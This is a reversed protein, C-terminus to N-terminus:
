STKEYVFANGKRFVIKLEPCSFDQGALVLVKSENALIDMKEQCGSGIFRSYLGSNKGDLNSNVLCLARAGAVPYAALSLFPDALVTSGPYNAKVYALADYQQPTIIKQLSFAEPQVKYYSFFIFAMSVAAIIGVLLYRGPIHRKRHFWLRGSISYAQSCIWFLGAGSLPAMSVMLYFLNRQYPLFFSVKFILFIVFIIFHVFPWLLLIRMSNPDIKEARVSGPRTGNVLRALYYAGIFALALAYMGYIGPLSYEYEVATWGSRFSLEGALNAFTGAISGTWFHLKAFLIVAAACVAVFFVIENKRKMWIKYQVASFAVSVLAMVVAAFPYIVLALFFILGSFIAWVLSSKERLVKPFVALYLFILPLSFTLPTFFWNGLINVNSKLAAFFVASLIGIWYNDTLRQALWFIILANVVLMLPALFKYFLVPNMPLSFLAALFMHFGFERDQAPIGLYPNFDRLGSKLALSWSIHAWEDSHLPFPYRGPSVLEGTEPSIFYNPYSYHIAFVLFFCAALAIALLGAKFANGREM